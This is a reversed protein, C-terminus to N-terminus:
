RRCWRRRAVHTCVVVRAEAVAAFVPDWYRNGDFLSPLGIHAPNESFTLARAGKGARREIQQAALKPDWHSISTQYRGPYSEEAITLGCDSPRVGVM